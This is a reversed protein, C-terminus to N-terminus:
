PTSSAAPNERFRALETLYTLTSLDPMRDMYVRGCLHDVEHQIIRAHFGSAAFDLENGERDLATVRLRKHRPVRGRIEPISLCGEWDEETEDGLPVIKPNILVSLPVTAKGPYRANNAVELVAVQWPEHVQVAALGVGQYERMTTVMDDIFRQFGPQNIEAAPVEGAPTRLVPNGLRAVRLIAMRVQYCSSKPHELHGKRPVPPAARKTSIGHVVEVPGSSDQGSTKELTQPPPGPIPCTALTPRVMVTHPIYFSARCM